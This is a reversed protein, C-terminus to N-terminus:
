RERGKARMEREGKGEDREMHIYGEYDDRDKEIM